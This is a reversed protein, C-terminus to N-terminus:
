SSYLNVEPSPNDYCVGDYYPDGDIIVTTCGQVGTVFIITEPDWKYGCKRDDQNTGVGCDAISVSLAFSEFAIDPASYKKKM